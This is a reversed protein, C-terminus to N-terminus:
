CQEDRTKWHTEEPQGERWESRVDEHPGRAESGSTGDSRRDGETWGPIADSGHLCEHPMWSRELRGDHDLRTESDDVSEILVIDTSFSVAPKPDFTAIVGFQESVRCADLINPKTLHTVQASHIQGDM